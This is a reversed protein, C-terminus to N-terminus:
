SGFQGRQEQDTCPTDPMDKFAEDGQNARVVLVPSCYYTTTRTANNVAVETVLVGDLRVTVGTISALSNGNNYLEDFFPETMEDRTASLQALNDTTRLPQLAMDAGPLPSYIFSGPGPDPASASTNSDFLYATINFFYMHARGSPNHARLNLNLQLSPPPQLRTVFVTGGVVSLSPSEPRLVLKIANVIVAVILVLVVAAVTYRVADIGRFPSKESGADGEGEGHYHDAGAM